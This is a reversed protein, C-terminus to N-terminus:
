LKDYAGLYKMANHLGRGWTCGPQVHYDTEKYLRQQKTWRKPSSLLRAAIWLNVMDPEALDSIEECLEAALPAYVSWMCWSHQCEYIPDLGSPTHTPIMTGACFRCKYTKM